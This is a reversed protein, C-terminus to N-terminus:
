YCRASGQKGYPQPHALGTILAEIAATGRANLTEWAAATILAEDEELLQVLEEPTKAEM